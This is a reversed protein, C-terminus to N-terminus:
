RSIRGQSDSVTSEKFGYDSTRGRGVGVVRAEKSEYFPEDEGDTQREDDQGAHLKHCRIHHDDLQTHELPPDGPPADCVVPKDDTLAPKGRLRSATQQNGDKCDKPIKRSREEKRGDENSVSSEDGIRNAREDGVSSVGSAHKGPM